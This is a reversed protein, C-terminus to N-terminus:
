SQKQFLKDPLPTKAWESDELNQLQRKEAALRYDLTLNYLEPTGCHPYVNRLGKLVALASDCLTVMGKWLEAAKFPDSERISAFAIMQYTHVIVAQVARVHHSFQECSDSQEPDLEKGAKEMELIQCHNVAEMIDCNLAM